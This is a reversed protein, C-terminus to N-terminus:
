EIHIITYAKQLFFILINLFNNKRFEDCYNCNCNIRLISFYKCLIVSKKVHYSNNNLIQKAIM